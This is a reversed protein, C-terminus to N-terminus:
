ILHSKLYGCATLPLAPASSPSRGAQHRPPPSPPLLVRFATPPDGDLLRMQEGPRSGTAAGRADQSARPLCVRALGGHRTPPADERAARPCVTCAWCARPAATRLSHLSRGTAM